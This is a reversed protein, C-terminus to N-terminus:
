AANEEEQEVQTIEAVKELLAELHNKNGKELSQLSNKEMGLLQEVEWVIHIKRTSSAGGVKAKEKTVYVKMSCLKSRISNANKASQHDALDENVKSAIASLSEASNDNNSEAYMTAILEEQAPTFNVKKETAM